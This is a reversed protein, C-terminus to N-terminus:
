TIRPAARGRVRCFVYKIADLLRTKQERRLFSVVDDEVAYDVRRLFAYLYGLGQQISGIIYPRHVLRRIMKVVFFAPHYGLSYDQVGQRFRGKSMSGGVESVRGHHVVQVDRFTRVKWGHMRAMIDAVTDTGGYTLRRLGGIQEFCERRFMELGGSVHWNPTALHHYTKGKTRVVLAPGARGIQEDAICKKLLVEICDPQIEIDADIKAVFAFDLDQLSAYGAKVANAMSSFARDGENNLKLLHIFPFKRCYSQVEEETADTSNDDVIVWKLPPLTQRGVCEILRAINAEENKAPTIVVYRMDRKDRM